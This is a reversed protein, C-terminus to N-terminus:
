IQVVIEPPNLRDSANCKEGGLSSSRLVGWGLWFEQRKKKYSVRSSDKTSVQFRVCPLLAAGCKVSSMM